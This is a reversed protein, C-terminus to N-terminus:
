SAPTGNKEEELAYLWNELWLVMDDTMHHIYPLMDDPLNADLQPDHHQHRVLVTTLGLNAAPVLNRVLDDILIAREPAIAFQKLLSAYSEPDPKPVYDSSQIDFIHDFFSAIGMSEIVREAHKRSGNTYVFKRGPLQSLIEQFGLDHKLASYDIDHVYDLFHHPDIKHEIMLGRLTTGHEVYFDKQLKRAEDRPLKFQDIVYDTMRRDIQQMLDISAPYITNDLDFIWERIHLPLSKKM